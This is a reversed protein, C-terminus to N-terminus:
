NFNERDRFLIDIKELNDLINTHSISINRNIYIKHCIDKLILLQVLPEYNNIHTLDSKDPIEFM